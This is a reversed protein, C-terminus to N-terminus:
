ATEEPEDFLRALAESGLAVTVLLAALVAAALGDDRNGLLGVLLISLTVLWLRALVSAALMGVANKRVGQALAQEAHRKAAHQIARQVLWAAALVAYGLMPLGAAVFVVLALALAALDANRLLAGARGSSGTGDLALTSV